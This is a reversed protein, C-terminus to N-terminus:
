EEETSIAGGDARAPQPEASDYFLEVANKRFADVKDKGVFFTYQYGILNTTVWGDEYIKLTKNHIGLEGLSVSVTVSRGTPEKDTNKVSGDSLLYKNVDAAMIPVGYMEGNIAVGANGYVATNKYDSADLFEGLTSPIYGTNVYPCVSDGDSFKVGLFLKPSLGDLEYIEINTKHPTDTKLDLCEITKKELLRVNRFVRLTERKGGTYAYENGGYTFYFYKAPTSMEDWDDPVYMEARTTAPRGGGGRTTSEKAATVSHGAPPAATESNIVVPAKTLTSETKKAPATTNSESVAPHNATERRSKGETVSLAPATVGYEDGRKVTIKEKLGGSSIVAALAVLLVAAAILAPIKRRQVPAPVSAPTIEMDKLEDWRDPVSAYARERLQKEFRSKM